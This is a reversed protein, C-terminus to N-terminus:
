TKKYEPVWTYIQECVEENKFRRKVTALYDKLRCNDEELLVFLKEDITRVNADSEKWLEEFLKEGPRLGTYKIDIDKYPILGSLKIMELALDTIKVPEGMDLLFVEGGNTLTGAKIVLQCAEPITMFYRKMDPHTVTIPGGRRIQDRFFPVVSGRSGLM